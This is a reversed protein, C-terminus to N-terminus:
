VRDLIEQRSFRNIIEYCDDNPFIADGTYTSRWVDDFLLGENKSCAIISNYRDGTMMNRVPLNKYHVPQDIKFQHIYKWAFGKPRWVLNQAALNTPDADLPVVQDCLINPPEVFAEAVLVAVSRTHRISTRRDVLSIKVHGFSTVSTRMQKNFKTNWINGLDSVEYTPFDPIMRWREDDIIRVM